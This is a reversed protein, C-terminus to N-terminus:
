DLAVHGRVEEWLDRFARTARNGPETVVLPARHVGMREVASAQPIVTELPTPDLDRLRAITDRHLSRRLDVMSFFPLVKLDDDRSELFERLAALTRESLTTPITPVLLADAARFVNESTLSISPPCDIIALDYDEAFVELAQTFRRRRGGKAAALLLDLHRNDIDAPLLDLLEVDTERIRRRLGRGARLLRRAGGDLRPRVRFYYTAAGQADLDWLLTRWGEEAAIAALNVACATKGVGGKLNYTALVKM